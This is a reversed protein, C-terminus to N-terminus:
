AAPSVEASAPLRPRQAVLILLSAVAWAAGIGFMAVDYNGFTDFYTAVLIPGSAAILMTFPMAVSRVAGIYRRGFYSAWITEQLPIQGGIGWGVIFFGIALMLTAQTQAALVIIVMAVANMIFSLSTSLRESWVDAMWGWVPKSVGAPIALISLMIAATGRSFGSDTLYPISLVIITMLGLSGLGFTVILVYLAQTRIAQRRTFSNAFDAMARAGGGSAMQSESKGDPHMGYDEPTRRMIAAAPFGLMVVGLAMVRWTARWGFEDVYWTAVVPLLIGAMSVGISALGIARGRQEVFWKSLTVNVALFGLLAAGLMSFVGRLIVWQWLEHVESIAFLAGALLAAGIFMLPRAGYRDVYAGVFFGAFAMFFQGVTQGYLFQARTWGLEDSMPVMFAGAIYGQAGATTFAALFGAGVMWWGYFIRPQKTAAAVVPGPAPPAMPGGNSTPPAPAATASAGNGLETLGSHTLPGVPVPATSVEPREQTLSM